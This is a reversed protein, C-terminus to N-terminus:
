IQCKVIQFYEDIDDTKTSNNNILLFNFDKTSKNYIDLFERYTLKSIYEKYLIEISHTNMQGCLFFDCNNRQLPALTHLYQVNTILSVGIHRSRSYLKNLTKLQRFNVDSNLDDLILLVEKRKTKKENAEATLKTMREILKETWDESWQSFINEKKVIGSKFYFKNVYETPCVVFITSFKHKEANVMAKLLESKGSNRKACLIVIKNCITFDM